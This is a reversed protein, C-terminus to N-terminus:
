VGACALAAAALAAAHCVPRSSTFCTAASAAAGECGHSVNLLLVDPAIRQLIASINAASISGAASLEKLLQGAKDRNLSTNFTAFRVRRCMRGRRAARSSSSGRNSSSNHLAGHAAAGRMTAVLALALLLLM